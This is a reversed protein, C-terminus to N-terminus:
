SFTPGKKKSTTAAPELGPLVGQGVGPSAAEHAIVIRLTQAGGASRTGSVRRTSRASASRTSGASRKRSYGATKRSARGKTARKAM